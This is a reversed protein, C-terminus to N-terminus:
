AALSPEAAGTGKVVKLIQLNQYGLKYLLDRIFNMAVTNKRTTFTGADVSGAPTATGDKLLTVTRTGKNLAVKVTNPM